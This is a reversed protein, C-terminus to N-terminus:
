ISKIFLNRTKKCFSIMIILNYELTSQLYQTCTYVAGVRCSMLLRCHNGAPRGTERAPYWQIVDSRSERGFDRFDDVLVNELPIGSGSRHMLGRCYWSMSILSWFNPCIRYWVPIIGDVRTTYKVFVTYVEPVNSVNGKHTANLVNFYILSLREPGLHNQIM